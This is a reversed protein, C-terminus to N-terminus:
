LTLFSCATITLLRECRSAVSSSRARSVPRGSPRSPIGCEPCPQSPAELRWLTVPESPERANRLDRVEPRFQRELAFRM